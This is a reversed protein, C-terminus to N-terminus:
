SLHLPWISREAGAWKHGQRSSVHLRSVYSLFKMTHLPPSRRAPRASAGATRGRCTSDCRGLLCHMSEAQPLLLGMERVSLPCSRFKKLLHQTANIASAETTPGRRHPTLHKEPVASGRVCPLEDYLSQLPVTDSCAGLHSSLQSGGRTHPRVHIEGQHGCLDSPPQGYLRPPRSM